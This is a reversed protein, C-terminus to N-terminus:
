PNDSKTRHPVPPDQNQPEDGTISGLYEGKHYVGVNGTTPDPFINWEGNPDSDFMVNPTQATEAPAPPPVPKVVPQPAPPLAEPAVSCGPLMVLLMSGSLTAFRSKKMLLVPAFRYVM